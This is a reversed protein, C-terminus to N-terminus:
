GETAALAEEPLKDGYIVSLLGPLYNDMMMVNAYVIQKLLAANLRDGEVDLSTKYRIEGDEFDMEFNGMILGYNARTIFEAVAMRKEAVVNVPAISYFIVQQQEERIRAVCSWRGNDGQFNVRLMTQGAHPTVPWNDDTFFNLAIEFLSSTM